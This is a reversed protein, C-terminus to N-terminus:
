FFGEGITYITFALQYFFSARLDYFKSVAMKENTKIIYLIFSQIETM